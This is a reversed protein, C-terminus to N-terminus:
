PERVPVVGGAGAAGRARRDGPLPGPPAHRVPDPGGFHVVQPRSGRRCGGRSREAGRGRGPGPTTGPWTSDPAWRVEAHVLGDVAGDAVYERAVRRLAPATQTAAVTHAFTELYRPLSRLRRQRPVASWSAPGHHCSTAWRRRSIWSPPPATAGDLHDHLSILGHPGLAGDTTRCPGQPPHNSHEHRRDNWGATRRQRAPSTPAPARIRACSGGPLEARSASSTARRVGEDSYDFAVEPSARRFRFTLPWRPASSGGRVLRGQAGRGQARGRAGPRLHPAPGSGM